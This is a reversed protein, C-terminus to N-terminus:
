HLLCLLRLSLGHTPFIGRSSPMAVWELVRAQLIWHVSSGPPSWHVPDGLTLFSQLSKAHVSTAATRDSLWTPSKAVGHVAARWAEQGEGVWLAQEFEHGHLQHHWGVM